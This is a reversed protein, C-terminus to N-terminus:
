ATLARHYPVLFPVAFPKNGAEHYAASNRLFHHSGVLKRAHVGSKIPITDADPTSVFEWLPYFYAALAATAASSTTEYAAPYDTWDGAVELTATPADFTGALKLRAVQGATPTFTTGAETITIQGTLDSATKIITGCSIKISGAAADVVEIDWPQLPGQGGDAQIIETKPHITGPANIGTGPATADEEDEESYDVPPSPALASSGDGEGSAEQARRGAEHIAIWDQPSLHEPAGLTITTQGQELDVSEAQVVANMSAWEPRSPHLINLGKGLYTDNGVEAATLVISGERPLQQRQEWITRALNPIIVEARAASISGATDGSPNGSNTAVLNSYVKTKATTATVRVSADIFWVDAGLVKGARPRKQFFLRTSRVDLDDVSSKAVAITADAVVEAAEVNMWEALTGSVLERPLDSVSPPRWLPTSNPNIASPAERMPDDTDDVDWAFQVRHAQVTDTSSFPLRIDDATLKDGGTKKLVALGLKDLWWKKAATDTEGDTPLPRTKIAVKTVQGPPIGRDESPIPPGPLTIVMSRRGLTANPPWKDVFVALRRRAKITSPDEAEAGAVERFQTAETEYYVHVDPVVLDARDGIGISSLPRDGLSLVRGAALSSDVIRLTDGSEGPVIIASAGPHWRLVARIMEACSQNSAEIAPPIMSPLSVSLSLGSIGAYAASAIIQALAATTTSREGTRTACLLARTTRITQRGTSGDSLCDWEQTYPTESLDGWADEMQVSFTESFPSGLRHVRKIRGRYYPAGDRRLLWVTDVLWPATSATAANAIAITFTFTGTAQSQRDLMPRSIGLDALTGASGPSGNPELTWIDSIM